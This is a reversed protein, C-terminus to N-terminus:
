DIKIKKTVMLFLIELDKMHICASSQLEIRKPAVDLQLQYKTWNSYNKIKRFFLNTFRFTTLRKQLADSPIWSCHATDRLLRSLAWQPIKNYRSEGHWKRVKRSARDSSFLLSNNGCPSLFVVMKTPESVGLGNM